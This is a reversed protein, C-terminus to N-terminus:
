SNSVADLFSADRLLIFISIFRKLIVVPRHIACQVCKPQQLTSYCDESVVCPEPKMETTNSCFNVKSEECGWGKATFSNVRGACFVADEQCLTLRSRLICCTATETSTFIFHSPIQKLFLKNLHSQTSKQSVTVTYM